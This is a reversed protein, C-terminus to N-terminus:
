GNDGSTPGGGVNVAAMIVQQQLQVVLQRLQTVQASVATLQDRVEGIQAQLMKSNAHLADINRRHLADNSM